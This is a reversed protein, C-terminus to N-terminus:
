HAAYLDAQQFRIARKKRPIPYIRDNYTYVDLIDKTDLLTCQPKSTYGWDINGFTVNNVASGPVLHESMPNNHVGPGLEMLVVSHYPHSLPMKAAILSGVTGGSVIIFNYIPYPVPTYLNPQLYAWILATIISFTAIYISISLM